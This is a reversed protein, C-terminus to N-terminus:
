GNGVLLYDMSSGNNFGFSPSAGGVCSPGGIGAVLQLIYTGPPAVFAPGNSEPGDGTLLIGGPSLPHHGNGTDDRDTLSTTAALTTTDAANRLLLFLGFENAASGNDNITGQAHVWIRSPQAVTVNQTGVVTTGPCALTAVNGVQRGDGFSPGRAGPPGQAGSGGVTGAGAGKPLVGKRFNDARLTRKAIDVGKISHDRIDVSRLSNDAVQGSGVKVAAYASGTLAFFLALYAIANHTLHRRIREVM